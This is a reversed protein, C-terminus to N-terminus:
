EPDSRLIFTGVLHHMNVRHQPDSVIKRIRIRDATLTADPNTDLRFSSFIVMIKLSGFGFPKNRNRIRFFNSCKASITLMKDPNEGLFTQDGTGALICNRM